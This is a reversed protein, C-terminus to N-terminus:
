DNLIREKQLEETCPVPGYFYDAHTTGFCPISKKAQAWSTAYESHTHAIGGINKFYKYLELHTKTDSSPKLDGELTKGDFGVLVINEPTLTEYDLGSPKIAIINKERDIGSVNGFTFIVLNNKALSINAEFVQDKLKKLSKDIM